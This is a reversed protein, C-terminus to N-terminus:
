RIPTVRAVKFLTPYSGSAVAGKVNILKILLIAHKKLANRHLDGEGYKYNYWHFM